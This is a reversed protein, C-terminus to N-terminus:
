LFNFPKCFHTPASGMRRTRNNCARRSFSVRTEVFLALIRHQLHPKGEIRYHIDRVHLFRSPPGSAPATPNEIQHAKLCALTKGLYQDWTLEFMFSRRIRELRGRLASHHARSRNSRMSLVSDGHNDGFQSSYIAERTSSAVVLGSSCWATALLVAIGVTHHTCWINSNLINLHVGGASALIGRQIFNANLIAHGQTAALRVICQM